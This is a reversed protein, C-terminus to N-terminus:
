AGTSTVAELVFSAYTATGNGTAGVQQITVTYQPNVGPTADLFNFDHSYFSSAGSAEQLTGGIQAPGSIATGRYVRLQVSTTGAGTAGSVTGGVSLGAGGPANYPLAATTLVITEATTVLAVIPAGTAQTIVPSAM